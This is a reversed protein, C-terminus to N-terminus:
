KKKLKKRLTLKTPTIGAAGFNPTFTTGFSVSVKGKRNLKKRKKGTARVMVQIDGPAGVSAPGTVNVGTGFYSLQGPNPISITQIATGKKKRVTLAGPTVTNTPEVIARVLVERTSGIADAARTTGDALPGGPALYWAASTAGPTEAFVLNQNPNLLGITDGRQIPLSTPFAPSVEAPWSQPASTAVGSYTTGSVQRLVQLSIGNGTNARAVWSTVTGNVPSTLGGGSQHAAPLALNTASCAAGANCGPDNKTPFAEITPGGGNDPIGGLNSGITVTASAQSALAGGAITALLATLALQRAARCFRRIVSTGTIERSATNPAM